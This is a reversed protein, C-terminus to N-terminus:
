RPDLLTIKRQADAQTCGTSNCASVSATITAQGTTWKFTSPQIVATWREAAGSCPASTGTFSQTHIVRKYVQTITGSVPGSTDTGACTVTGHLQVVGTRKNVKGNAAIRLSVTPAAPAASVRLTLQGSNRLADTGAVGILYTVGAQAEFQPTDCQWTSSDETSTAVVLHSNYDTDYSVELRQTTPSTVSYWVSASSGDRDYCVPESLQRTALTTDQTATFPVSTIPAAAEYNDNAPVVGTSPYVGITPSFITIDTPQDWYTVFYLSKGADVTFAGADTFSGGKVGCKLVTTLDASVVALGTPQDPTPGTVLASHVVFTSQAAPTYKWWATGYVDAGGQCAAAVKLGAPDAAAPNDVRTEGSDQFPISSFTRATAPTDNDTVAAAASGASGVM